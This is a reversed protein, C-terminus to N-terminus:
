QSKIPLISCQLIVHVITEKLKQIQYKPTTTWISVLIMNHYTKITLLINNQNNDTNKKMQVKHQVVPSMKLDVRSQHVSPPKLSSKLQGNGFVNHGLINRCYNTQSPSDIKLMIIDSGADEAKSPASLNIGSQILPSSANKRMRQGGERAESFIRWYMGCVLVFPIFIVTIFYCYSFITDYLSDIIHDQAYDSFMVTTENQFEKTIISPTSSTYEARFASAIGFIIGLIWIAIIYSWAKIDSMRAHYRLPDTIACWTDGVVLLIALTGLAASILCFM